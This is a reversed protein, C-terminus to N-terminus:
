VKAVIVAVTEDADILVVRVILGGDNVAILNLGAMTAPPLLVVPVTVRLPGAGVPPKTMVNDPLGESATNGAVTFIAAPPLVAVNVILVALPLAGVVSVIVAVSLPTDLVAVSM